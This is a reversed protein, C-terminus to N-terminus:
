ILNIIKESNEYLIESSNKYLIIVHKLKYPAPDILVVEYRAIDTKPIYFDNSNDLRFKDTVYEYKDDIGYLINLDLSPNMTLKNRKDYKTFVFTNVTSNHLKHMDDKSLISHFINVDDRPRSCKRQYYIDFSQNIYHAIFANVKTFSEKNSFFWPQSPDLRQYNVGVSKTMDNLIYVHPNPIATIQPNRKLNLFTKIHLDLSSESKTFSELLTKGPNITDLYNSGFLLWNIGIQDFNQYNNLFSSVNDASNLVLFEDSDLYLLWDYNQQRAITLASNIFHFKIGGSTDNCREVSVCPHSIFTDIPTISLHDFIHVHSFGLNLHHHVWELLNQEDRANTFVITKM